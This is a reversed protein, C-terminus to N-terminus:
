FNSRTNPVKGREDRASKIYIKNETLLFHYRIIVIERDKFLVIKCNDYFKIVLNNIPDNVAIIILIRYFTDNEAFYQIFLTIIKILFHTKDTGPFNYFFGFEELFKRILNIDNM